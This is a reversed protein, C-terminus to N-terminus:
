MQLYYKALRDVLKNCNTDDDHSEVKIFKWKCLKTLQELTDKVQVLRRDKLEVVKGTRIGKFTRIVYLSDTVIEVSDEETLEVNKLLYSVALHVAIAEAIGIDGTTFSGAGMTVYNEKTRIVYGIAINEESSSHAGDTYIIYKM